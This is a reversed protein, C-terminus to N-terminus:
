WVVIGRRFDRPFINRARSFALVRPIDWPYRYESIGAEWMHRHRFVDDEHPLIAVPEEEDEDSTKPPHLLKMAEEDTLPPKEIALWKQAKKVRVRSPGWNLICSGSGYIGLRDRVPYSRCGHFSRRALHLGVRFCAVRDKVLDEGGWGITKDKPNTLLTYYDETLIVRNKTKKDLQKRGLLIQMMCWSQGKDGVGLSGLGLDVDRRYGSEFWAMSAVLALTKARGYKGGFLPKEAPDYVVSIMADAIKEYRAKGDEKTEKAEKIFSRGTPMWNLMRNVLWQHLSTVMVSPATKDVAVETETSEQGDEAKVTSPCIMSATVLVTLILVLKRLM